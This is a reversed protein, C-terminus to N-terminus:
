KEMYKLFAAVVDPAFQEGSFRKIEEIAEENSMASRYVANMTMSVYAEAVSLIKAELPIEDGTLRRPYGNGNFWEHHSLVYDAIHAFESVSRLIQYGIEPHRKIETWDTKELPTTKKLIAEDITIKGIDHLLGLLGIDEIDNNGLGLASGIGKCAESVRISHEREYPDKEYLSRTIIKITQSKMSKSEMLKRRYMFDEAETFIAEVNDDVSNIVGWGFSVSLIIDDVKTSTLRSKIKDIVYEAEKASAKPMLIVFEDGGTRAVIDRSGSEQLLIDAVTKLLKDGVLHGFADNTLKLGNVDAMVLTIPINDEKVIRSLEEEYFRRNYLGTLQDNYSLYRVQQEQKKREEINRSVGLIELEGFENYRYKTSVEVWIVSGDKCPQQIETFYSNPKEPFKVFEAKNKSIAEIVVKYSEETLAESLKEGMAEEVTLGRLNYISPSIHTFKEKNINLVWIVDSTYETLWRYKEESKKLADEARKIETVDRNNTRYGLYNGERDYAESCTHEIWVVDGNRKKIRFREKHEEKSYKRSHTHSKWIEADEEYVISDFLNPNEIYEEAKYGSIDFCAQSVYILKHNEDEWTEWDFSYDAIISYKKRAIEYQNKLQELENIQKKEETLDTIYTLFCDNELPIVKVRYYRQLEESYDELLTIKMSKLVDSYLGVWKQLSKERNKFIETIRKGLIENAPKGLLNEFEKNVDLFEYDCADGNEDYLMRHSAFAVPFEDIRRSYLSMRIEKNVVNKDRKHM